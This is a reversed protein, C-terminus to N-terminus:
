DRRHGLFHRRPPVFEKVLVGEDWFEPNLVQNAQGECVGIKFSKYDEYKPKLEICIFDSINSKNLYEEVNEKTIATDLRSVFIWNKKSAAKLKIEGDTKTGFMPKKKTEAKDSANNPITQKVQHPRSQRDKPMNQKNVTPGSTNSKTITSNTIKKTPRYTLTPWSDNNVREM